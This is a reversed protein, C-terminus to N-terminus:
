VCGTPRPLGAIRSAQKAPGSPFLDYLYDLNGKETGFRKGVEKVLVKAIPSLQYLKFYDRLFYIIEWHQDTLELGEFQAVQVALEQSWDNSNILYGDDDVEITKGQVEITGM